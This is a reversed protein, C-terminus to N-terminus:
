GTIQHFAGMRVTMPEAAKQRSGGPLAGSRYSPNDKELTRLALAFPRGSNDAIIDHGQWKLSAVHRLILLHFFQEDRTGLREGRM